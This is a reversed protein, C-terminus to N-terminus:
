SWASPPTCPTAGLAGALAALGAVVFVFWDM